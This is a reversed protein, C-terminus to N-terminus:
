NMQHTPMYLFILKGLGIERCQGTFGCRNFYDILLIGDIPSNDSSIYLAFIENCTCIQQVCGSTAFPIMEHHQLNLGVGECEWM